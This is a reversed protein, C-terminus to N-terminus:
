TKKSKDSNKYKKKGFNSLLSAFASKRVIKPNDKYLDDYPTRYDFDVEEEDLEDFNPFDNVKEANKNSSIFAEENFSERDIKHGCTRCFRDNEKISEGCEP